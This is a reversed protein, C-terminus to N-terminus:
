HPNLIPQLVSSDLADNSGPAHFVDAGSGLGSARMSAVHRNSADVLEKAWIAVAPASRMDTPFDIETFPPAACASGIPIGQSRPLSGLTRAIGAINSKMESMIALSALTSRGNNAMTSNMRLSLAIEALLLHYQLDFQECWQISTPDTIRRDPPAAASQPGYVPDTPFPRVLGALIQGPNEPNRPIDEYLKLFRMFHSDLELSSTLGEGQASIDHLAQLAQARNGVGSVFIGLAQAPLAPDTLWDDSSGQFELNSVQFADDSLHGMDFELHDKLAWPGETGDGSQFLWYLHAYLLGVPTIDFGSSKALDYAPQARNRTAL